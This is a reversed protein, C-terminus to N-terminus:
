ILKYWVIKTIKSPKKLNQIHQVTKPWNAQMCRWALFQAPLLLKAPPTLVTSRSLNLLGVGHCGHCMSWISWISYVRVERIARSVPLSVLILALYWTTEPALPHLPVSQLISWGNEAKSQMLWQLSQICLIFMGVIVNSAVLKWSRQRTRRLRKCPGAASDIESQRSKSRAVLVEFHPRLCGRQSQQSIRFAHTWLRPGVSMERCDVNLRSRCSNHNLPDNSQERWHPASSMALSWTLRSCLPTTFFCGKWPLVAARHGIRRHGPSTSQRPSFWTLLVLYHTSTCTTQIPLPKKELLLFIWFIFLFSCFHFSMLLLSFFHFSSFLSSLFSFM